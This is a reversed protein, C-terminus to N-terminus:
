GSRWGQFRRYSGGDTGLRTWVVVSICGTSAADDDQSPHMRQRAPVTPGSIRLSAELHHPSQVWHHHTHFRAQVRASPERDAAPTEPVAHPKHRDPGNGAVPKPLQRPMTTAKDCQHAALAPPAHPQNRARMVSRGAAVCPVATVPEIACITRKQQPPLPDSVVPQYRQHAIGNRVM